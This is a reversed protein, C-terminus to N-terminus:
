GEGPGEKLGGPVQSRVKNKAKNEVVCKFSRVESEIISIKPFISNYIPQSINGWFSM